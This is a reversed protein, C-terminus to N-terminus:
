ALLEQCPAPAESELVLAVEALLVDMKFPKRLYRSGPQLIGTCVVEAPDRGSILLIPCHQAQALAAIESGSPLGPLGLDLVVMDFAHEMMLRAAIRGDPATEVSHGGVEELVSGMLELLLAYDEVVLIRKLV